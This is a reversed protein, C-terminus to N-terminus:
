DEFLSGYVSIRKNIQRISIKEFDERIWLYQAYM